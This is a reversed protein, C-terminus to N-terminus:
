FDLGRVENDAGAEMSVTFDSLGGDTTEHRAELLACSACMLKMFSFRSGDGFCCCGSEGCLLVCLDECLDVRLDEYGNSLAIM